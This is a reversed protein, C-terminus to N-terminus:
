QRGGEKEREALSLAANILGVHTFGQPFNGLADGSAPDIEEAFLGLDNAYAACQAFADRALEVTGGGRALFEVAWFGCMGFAGETDGLHHENRFVLGPGPSLRERVREYTQRMRSSSAPEFGHVALLLATADISDGGLEQTYSDLRPNWAREEIDRRILERQRALEAQPLGHCHGREHLEILRDLAVWCMLRSHTHHRPEERPEWIGQDPEAWHRCVYRGFHRLMQQTERDLRGGHRVFHAVAEIVEGYVDLQVQDRAANGIRVPRSGAYGDLDPREREDGPNEGFVDYLVRLEPRSLRTAHLLWSVFAEAEDQYGLGFLARATFSADRLWCFRYDWNRDGGVREPLSTTPAAVIAGSPAFTLLKLALASRVVHDRFPGVYSARASWQRWWAVTLHLKRQVLDGLPALVAPGDGAYALSFSIANGAKIRAQGMAGGDVAPSLPVDGRLALLAAGMELRLGLPGADRLRVAARGFDPCPDFEIRVEVEGQECEVHRILEHEPWLIRGKDEESAAPMFDTLRVVGTSTEFRTELVNTDPLYRREARASEAPAITWSGGRADLLRGFVPPRDFRPWCLWDIGGDRAVLAASRGDGIVAYDQIKPTPRSHM